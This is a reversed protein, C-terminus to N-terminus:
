AEGSIERWFRKVFLIDKKSPNLSRPGRNRLSVNLRRLVGYVESALKQKTVNPKILCEEIARRYNRWSVHLFLPDAGVFLGKKNGAELKMEGTSAAFSLGHFKRGELIPRVKRILGKLESPSEAYIVIKDPHGFSKFYHSFKWRVDKGRFLGVLEVIVDWYDHASVCVYLKPKWVNLPSRDRYARGSFYIWYNDKGRRLDKLLSRELFDFIVKSKRVFDKNEFDRLKTM